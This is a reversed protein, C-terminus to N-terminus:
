VRKNQEVEEEWNAAPKYLRANIYKEDALTRISKNELNSTKSRTM